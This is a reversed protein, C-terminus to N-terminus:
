GTMGAEESARVRLECLGWGWLEGRRTGRASRSRGCQRERRAKTGWCGVSKGPVRACLM